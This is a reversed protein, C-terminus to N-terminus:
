ASRKLSFLIRRALAIPNPNFKSTFTNRVFFCATSKRRNKMPFIRVFDNFENSVFFFLKKKDKEVFRVRVFVCHLIGIVVHVKLKWNKRKEACVCVYVCVRTRSCYARKWYFDWKVGRGNRFIWFEVIRRVRLLIGIKRNWTKNIEENWMSFFFRLTTNNTKRNTQQITLDYRAFIFRTCVRKTEPM